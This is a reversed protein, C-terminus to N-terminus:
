SSLLSWAEDRSERAQPCMVGTEADVEKSTKGTWRATHRVRIMNIGPGKQNM